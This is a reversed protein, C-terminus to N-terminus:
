VGFSIANLTVKRWAFANGAAAFPKLHETIAADGPNGCV